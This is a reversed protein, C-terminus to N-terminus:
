SILQNAQKRFSLENGIGILDYVEDLTKNAYKNAREAGQELIDKALKINGRIETRKKRAEKFCRRHAEFLREKVEVDGVKGEKYRNKLNNVEEVDDNMLDHYIFVPNGEVTGPDTARKRNPDTYCKMIQEKILKEDDFIGVVNGLSKSMKREGDTGVVKGSHGSSILPEPLPFFDGPYVKNFSQAVDRTLEVHQRQDEGVPVGDPKYLLIDAAMLIPYNFLGMNITDQSTGKALKDKFAHMRKLYGYPIYNGLVVALQSHAPVDSQRFYASKKPDLGLAIFDLINSTINEELKKKDQVTTLAHLDAVFYFSNKVSKQLDMQPKVAGFYNGIHLANGSPTIGSLVTEVKINDADQRHPNPFTVDIVRYKRKELFRLINGKDTEIAGSKTASGTIVRDMYMVADDVYLEVRDDLLFPTLLGEKFGLKKVEDPSCMEINKLKLVQKLRVNDVSRDDRRLLAIFREGDGKFLLTGLGERYKMGLARVQEDLNLSDTGSDLVKYQLKNQKLVKEIRKITELDDKSIPLSSSRSVKKPDISTFNGLRYEKIVKLVNSGSIRLTHDSSGTGCYAEKMGVVKEDVFVRYEFGNGRIQDLLVPSVTGKTFGIKELQEDNCLYITKSGVLNRFKKNDIKTDDRRLVVIYEDTDTVFILTPLGKKFSGPEVEYHSSYKYIKHPIKKLIERLRSLSEPEEIIESSLVEGIKGKAEVSLQEGTKKVAEEVVAKAVGKVKCGLVYVNKTNSTIKQYISDRYFFRSLIKEDDAMVVLGKRLSEIKGGLPRFEEGEDSFRLIIDGKISESDFVGLPVFTQLAVLNTIDVVNNIQPLKGSALFRRYLSEVSPQHEEPDLGLEEYFERYLSFMEREFFKDERLEKTTIGLNKGDLIKVGSVVNVDRVPLFVVDIEPFKEKVQKSIKFKM